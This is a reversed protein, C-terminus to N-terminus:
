VSSTNLVFILLVKPFPFFHHWIIKPIIKLYKLLLKLEIGIVTYSPMQSRLTTPSVTKFAKQPSKRFYKVRSLRVLGKM